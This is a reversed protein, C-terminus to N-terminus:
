CFALHQGGCTVWVDQDCTSLDLVAVSPKHGREYGEAAGDGDAVTLCCCARLIAGLGAKAHCTRDSTGDNYVAELSM